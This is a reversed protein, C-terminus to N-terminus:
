EWLRSGRHLARQRHRELTVLAAILQCLSAAIEAIWCSIANGHLTLYGADDGFLARIGQLVFRLLSLAQFPCAEPRQCTSLRFSCGNHIYSSNIPHEELLDREAMLNARMNRSDVGLRGLRNQWRPVFAEIVHTSNVGDRLKAEALDCRTARNESNKAVQHGLPINRYRRAGSDFVKLGTTAFQASNGVKGLRILL